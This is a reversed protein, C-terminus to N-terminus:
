VAAAHYEGRDVSERAGHARDVAGGM